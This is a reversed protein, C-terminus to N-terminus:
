LKLWWPGINYSEKLRYNVLIRFLSSHKDRAPDQGQWVFILGPTSRMFSKQRLHVYEKQLSSRKM